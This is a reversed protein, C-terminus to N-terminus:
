PLETASFTQKLVLTHYHYLQISTDLGAKCYLQKQKHHLLSDMIHPKALREGTRALWSSSSLDAAQFTSCDSNDSHVSVCRCARWQVLMQAQESPSSFTCTEHPPHARRKNRKQITQARQFPFPQHTKASCLAGKM